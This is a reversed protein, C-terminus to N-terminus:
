QTTDYPTGSCTREQTAHYPTGSAITPTSEIVPRRPVAPSHQNTASGLIVSAHLCAVKFIVCVFCGAAAFEGSWIGGLSRAFLNMLGFLSAVLGAKSTSLNFEDSFYSAAVNNVTLEVGFCAAYQLFMLWSNVNMYGQVRVILYM